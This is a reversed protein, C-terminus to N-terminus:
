PQHEEAAAAANRRVLEVHVEEVMAVFERLEAISKFRRPNVISIGGDLDITTSHDPEAIAMTTGLDYFRVHNFNM